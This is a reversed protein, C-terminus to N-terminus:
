KLLIGFNSLARKIEQIGKEGLGDLALLDEKSKRAIGGVTRIKAADLANQTRTSLNLDEVRTKLAEEEENVDEEEVDESEESISKAIAEKEKELAKMEEKIEDLGKFEHISQLQLIMIEVAKELAEKPSYTGDTEIAIRLRNHNTNDGVRMNEVEYSVRRVPSFLADIAIQGLEMKEKQIEDKQIFGLGTEIVMEIELTKKKDTVTAIYEEPNLVEVQGPVTIDKAFVEGEKVSLTVTQPEDTTLKFRIRKLNLIINIVDEQVGEITEFEHGVGDIKVRTIAAGPLSSLIIRRLSNGLTHGYGPYLGDIEYIAKNGDEKVLRPKSPLLIEHSSM